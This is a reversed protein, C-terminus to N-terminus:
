AHENGWCSRHAAPQLIPMVHAVRKKCSAAPGIGGADRDPRCEDVEWTEIASALSIVSVVPGMQGIEFRKRIVRTYWTWSPCGMIVAITRNGSGAATVASWYRSIHRCAAGSKRVGAPSRDLCNRS